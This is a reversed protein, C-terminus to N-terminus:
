RRRGAPPPYNMAWVTFALTASRKPYPLMSSEPMISPWITPPPYESRDRQDGVAEVDLSDPREGGWVLNPSIPGCFGFAAPKIDTTVVQSIISGRNLEVTRLPTDHSNNVAGALFVRLLQSSYGCAVSVCGSEGCQAGQGPHVRPRPEVVKSSEGCRFSGEGKAQTRLVPVTSSCASLSLAIENGAITQRLRASIAYATLKTRASQVKSDRTM